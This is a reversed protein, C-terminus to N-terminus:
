FLSAMERARPLASERDMVANTAALLTEVTNNRVAILNREYGRRQFFNSTPVQPRMEQPMAIMDFGNGDGTLNMMELEAATLPRAMGKARAFRVSDALKHIQLLPGIDIDLNLAQVGLGQPTRALKVHEGWSQPVTRTVTVMRKLIDIKGTLRKKREGDAANAKGQMAKILRDGHAALLGITNAALLQNYGLATSLARTEPKTPDIGAQVDYTGNGGAEFSYIRVVQDQALGAAKAALVYARKFDIEQEPREPTFDYAEKASRLFDAVVPVPEREPPPTEPSSPDIPRSPGTYQPPQELVYDTLTIAERDRRKAARVKRRLEVDSWYLAAVAEFSARADEYDKLKRQYDAIAQESVPPKVSPDTQALGGEGSLVTAAISFGILWYWM